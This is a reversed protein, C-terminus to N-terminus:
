QFESGCQRLLSARGAPSTESLQYGLYGGGQERATSQTNYLERALESRCPPPTRQHFEAKGSTAERPFAIGAFGRIAVSQQDPALLTFSAVKVDPHM